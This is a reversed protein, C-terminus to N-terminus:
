RQGGAPVLPPEAVKRLGRRTQEEEQGQGKDIVIEGKEKRRPMSKRTERNGKKKFSRRRGNNGTKELM